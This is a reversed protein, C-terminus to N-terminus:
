REEDDVGWLKLCKNYLESGMKKARERYEAFLGEGGKIAHMMAQFTSAESEDEFYLVLKYSCKEKKEGEVKM